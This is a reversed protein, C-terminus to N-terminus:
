SCCSVGVWVSLRMVTYLGNIIVISIITCICIKKVNYLNTETYIAYAPYM